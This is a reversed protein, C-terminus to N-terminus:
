SVTNSVALVRLRSIISKPVYSYSLVFLHMTDSWSIDIQVCRAIWITSPRSLQRSFRKELLFQGRLLQHQGAACYPFVSAFFSLSSFRSHHRCLRFSVIMRSYIRRGRWVIVVLFIFRIFLILLPPFFLLQCMACLTGCAIFIRHVFGGEALKRGVWARSTPYFNYISYLTIGLFFPPFSPFSFFFFPCHCPLISTPSLHVLRQCWLVPSNRAYVSRLYIYVSLCVCLCLM